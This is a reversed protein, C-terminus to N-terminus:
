EDATLRHASSYDVNALVKRAPGSHGCESNHCVFNLRLNNSQIAAWFNGSNGGSISMIPAGSALNFYNSQAVDFLLFIGANKNPTSGVAPPFDHIDL